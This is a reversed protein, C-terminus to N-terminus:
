NGITDKVCGDKANWTVCDARCRHENGDWVGRGTELCTISDYRQKIEPIRNMMFFAALTSFFIIYSWKRWRGYFSGLFSCLCVLMILGYSYQLYKNIGYIDIYSLIFGFTFFSLVILKLLIKIGWLVRKAKIQRILSMQQRFQNNM